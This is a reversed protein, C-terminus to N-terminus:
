FCFSPFHCRLDVTAQQPLSGGLRKSSVLPGTELEGGQRGRGGVRRLTGVSRCVSTEPAKCGGRAKGGSRLGGPQRNYAGGKEGKSPACPRLARPKNYFRVSSFGNVSHNKEQGTLNTRRNQALARGRKRERERERHISCSDLIDSPLSGGM